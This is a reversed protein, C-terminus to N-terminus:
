CGVRGQRQYNNGRQAFQVDRGSGSSLFTSLIFFGSSTTYKFFSLCSRLTNKVGVRASLGSSEERVKTVYGFVGFTGEDFAM